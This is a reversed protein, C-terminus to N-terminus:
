QQIEPRKLSESLSIEKRKVQRSSTKLFEMGGNGSAWILQVNLTRIDCM